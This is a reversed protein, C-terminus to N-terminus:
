VAGKTPPLTLRGPRQARFQILLGVMFLIWGAWAVYASSGHPPGNLPGVFTWVAGGAAATLSGYGWLRPRLVRSRGWPAVWGTAIGAVGGVALVTLAFASAGALVWHMGTM